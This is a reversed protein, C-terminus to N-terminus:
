KQGNIDEQDDLANFFTLWWSASRIVRQWEEVTAEDNPMISLMTFFEQPQM